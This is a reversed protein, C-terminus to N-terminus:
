RRILPLFVQKIITVDDAIAPHMGHNRVRIRPGDFDESILGKVTIRDLLKVDDWTGNYGDLFARVPGSGDDVMVYDAGKSKVTGTIQTLWGQNAELAAGHTSFPLPAPITSTTTLIQVQEAEFFEVETDGDYIGITGLVRVTVGRAYDAADIDGAPAHVTIGGTEDQVYLVNFFEGFAATIKGEIWVLKDLKDPQNVTSYARAQAITTKTVPEGLLWMVAELNFLENQKGDGATYAFSTFADNSDGYLLIRGGGSPLQTVAAMPVPIAGAPQGTLYAPYFWTLNYIYADGGGDKDENYTHYPDHFSNSMDYGEDLDGQVMIQVGPTGATIPQTVLRGRISSLSWSALKEVNVGIGTTMTNPFSSWIVGFVYGNNDNGDGLEDDNLRMNISTGARTEIRDLIANMRDAVLAAWPDAGNSTYDALGCLWLSGGNAAYDAIVNLENTTYATEPATILLLKVTDTNLITTTLPSLNKLVNYGHDSLDKVFLRMERGGANVNDHSADILILPVKQDTVNMVTSRTNDALNDGAPAGSLAATITVRGTATPQWSINAYGDVCPGLGCGPVTTTLVQAPNGPIQFTVTVTQTQAMRNTIRATILSPNHISAITPEVTLDTLAINVESQTWIPSSVIRDDDPQTVKVYFYHVGPTVPVIPNWTFNSTPRTTQTVVEGGFTILQVTVAGENDPDFGTIDFAISGTNPIESGMWAGNAKLRLTYNKDETAFTRRARLAALLDTKTLAPMWVGTRHDTNTGWYISHTDANNTAGLKWGYDLSRIYEEESFVYSSGSGNGVEELRMTPSVEPHYTWDNFNMWGPHNFQALSGAGDLAQTGTIALWNYFGDVTIGKELNPTYDCQSGVGSNTRCPHRVTNYVNIHGEAGQTYEAGRIAVFQGDITAAEVASLTNAWDSDSIHYSHDSIAMFDFGAAKGAALAQTPTGSGDSYSTHNHLDGHYAYMPTESATTFSWEAAALPNGAWDTVSSSITITHRAQSSLAIPTLVLRDTNPDYTFASWGISGSPGVLTFNAPIVTSPKLDESFSIVINSNLPVSIADTAPFHAVITPSITDAAGTTFSWTTSALPNGAEDQIGTTLTATHVTLPALSSDPTFFATRTGSAYSVSGTISGNTDALTFTSTTVTTPNLDESFTASLPVYPSVDIANNAPVTSTVTPPTVDPIFIDSQYRPMIQPQYDYSASFGTITGQTSSTYGRMDIQTEKDVFIEIPGSGDNVYFSWDGTGPATPTTTWTVIGTVRVLLGQTNSVIAASTSIVQPAPVSGPGVRVIATTPDFELLGNYPKLTGTVQVLDGLTLAPIGSVKYVYVGGTADQIAFTRSDFIGPPVTVNGEVGGTWGQGAARATAIPTFPPLEGILTVVRSTNDATTTETATTSATVTNTLLTGISLGSSIVGQVTIVGSAGNAVDGLDWVLTQADPKSFNVTLATTYTIFRVEPPLTDTLVSSTATVTGTNFLNITYTITESAQAAAPGTKVVGLNAGSMLTGTVSIDDIGVWEDSGVANTTMIRLQVQPQNNAAAPLTVTVPTVLTALSPGTTADAIYGAPLNTFNGSTGVRYHLAVQQVANDSTGDIDRVNYTVIVDQWGTTDLHLLIFPADATGSGQLAVVPDAIEFEAVGGTTTIPSGQNAIVDVPTASGDALITQPDTGTGGTLNDGRYAVVGPVGSWDDDVAILATNTWNQSFPLAQYTNNAHAAQATLSIGLIALLVFTFGITSFLAPRRNM